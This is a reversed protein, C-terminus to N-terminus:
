QPAAPLQLPMLAPAAHLGPCTQLAPTQTIVHSALRTSQWFVQTLGRVSGAKQPAPGPQAPPM